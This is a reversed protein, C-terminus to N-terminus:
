TGGILSQPGHGYQAYLIEGGVVRRYMALRVIRILQERVDVRGNTMNIATAAKEAVIVSEPVENPYEAPLGTPQAVRGEREGCLGLAEQAAEAAEIECILQIPQEV